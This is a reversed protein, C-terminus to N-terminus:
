GAEAARRRAPDDGGGVRHGEVDLLHPLDHRGGHAAEARPRADRIHATGRDERQPRHAAVIGAHKGENVFEHMRKHLRELREGSFGQSEPTATPLSQALAGGTPWRVPVGRLDARSAPPAPTPARSAYPTANQDGASARTLRDLGIPGPVHRTATRCAWTYNRNRRWLQTPLSRPQWSPPRTCPLVQCAERM